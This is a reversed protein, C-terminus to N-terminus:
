VRETAKNRFFGGRQWEESREAQWERDERGAMKGDEGGKQQGTRKVKRKELGKERSGEGTGKRIRREGKCIAGM